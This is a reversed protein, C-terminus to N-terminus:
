SYLMLWSRYMHHAHSHSRALTSEAGPLMEPNVFHLHLAYLPFHNLLELWFVLFARALLILVRVFLFEFYYIATTPLLFFTLTFLLTGLLLQDITYDCSDIRRKLPNYKKGPIAREACLM